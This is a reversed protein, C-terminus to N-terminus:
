WSAPALIMWAAGFRGLDFAGLDTFEWGTTGKFQPLELGDRLSAARERRAALWEPEHLIAEAM